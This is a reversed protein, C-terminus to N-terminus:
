VCRALDDSAIPLLLDILLARLPVSRSLFRSSSVVAEKGRVPAFLTDKANRRAQALCVSYTSSPVKSGGSEVRAGVACITNFLFFSRTRISTFNDSRADNFFVDDFDFISIFTPCGDGFTKFLRRADPESILGLTVVDGDAEIGKRETENFGALVLESEIAASGSPDAGRSGKRRRKQVQREADAGAGAGARLDPSHERDRSASRITTSTQATPHEGELAPAGDGVPTGKEGAAAPGAAGAGSRGVPARGPTAASAGVSGGRGRSAPRPTRPTQATSRVNAGREKEERNKGDHDEAEAAAAAADALGRLAEIPAALRDNPFDTDNSEVSENKTKRVARSANANGPPPPPMGPTSTAAWAPTGRNATTAEASAARTPGTRVYLDPNVSSGGPPTPRNAGPGAGTGAGWISEHPSFPQQSTMPLSGFAGPQQVNHPQPGPNPGGLNAPWPSAGPSSNHWPQSSHYSHESGGASAPSAGHGHGYQQQPLESFSVQPQRIGANVQVGQNQQTGRQSATDFSPPGYSPTPAQPPAQQPHLLNPHYSGVFPQHGPSPNQASPIHSSQGSLTRPHQQQQQQQQMGMMPSFPAPQAQPPPPPAAPAPAAVGAANAKLTAVLEGLMGQMGAMQGELLKIRELGADGM